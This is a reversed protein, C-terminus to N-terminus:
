LGRRLWPDHSWNGIFPTAPNWDWKLPTHNWYRGGLLIILIAPTLMALESNSIVSTMHLTWYFTLEKKKKKKREVKAVQQSIRPKFKGVIRTFICWVLTPMSFSTLWKCRWLFVYIFHKRCKTESSPNPVSLLIMPCGNALHIWPHWCLLLFSSAVPILSVQLGYSM